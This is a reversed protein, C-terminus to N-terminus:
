LLAIPQQCTRQGFLSSNVSVFSSALKRTGCVFRSKMNLATMHGLKCLNSLTESVTVAGSEDKVVIRICGKATRPMRSSNAVDFLNAIRGMFTICRTGPSLSAIDSDYYKTTPSPHWIEPLSPHLAAEIEAATFGDGSLPSSSPPASAPQSQFFSQICLTQSAMVKM